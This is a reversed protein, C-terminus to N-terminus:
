GMSSKMSKWIKKIKEPMIFYIVGFVLLILIIALMFYFLTSSLGLCVKIQTLIGIVPGVSSIGSLLTVAQLLMNTKAQKAETIEESLSNIRERFNLLEYDLELSEGTKKFIENALFNFSIHSIHYKNLFSEFLNRWKVADENSHQIESNYRYMNYKFFLRFLYIRFYTCDWTNYQFKNSLQGKGVTTFSDFLCLAEWNKFVGIRNKMIEEYYVPDPSYFTNGACSGLPSVTAIDFILDSRSHDDNDLDIVTFLKFKSGSYEDSKVKNGRLNTDCLIHKSIWQHWLSGDKVSTDFNRIVSLINSIDEITYSPDEPQISLSFLGLNGEFIYIEAKIINIPYSRAKDGRGYNLSVLETANLVFRKNLSDSPTLFMIERFEPYFYDKFFQETEFDKEQENTVPFCDQVYGRRVLNSYFNKQDKQGIEGILGVIRIISSNIKNM